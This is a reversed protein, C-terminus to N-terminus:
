RSPGNMRDLLRMAPRWNATERLSSSTFWRRLRIRSSPSSKLMRQGSTLASSCRAQSPAVMSGCSAAALPSEGPFGRHQCCPADRGDGARALGALAIGTTQDWVAGARYCFWIAVVFCLGLWVETGVAGLTTLSWGILLPAVPPYGTLAPLVPEPDWFDLYYLVGIGGTRGASLPWALAHIVVM